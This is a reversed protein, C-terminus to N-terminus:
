YGRLRRAEEIKRELERKVDAPLGNLAESTAQDIASNVGPQTLAKMVAANTDQTVTSLSKNITSANSRNIESNSQDRRDNNVDENFTTWRKCTGWYTYTYIEGEEDTGYGTLQCPYTIEREGEYDRRISSDSDAASKSNNAAQDSMGRVRDSIIDNNLKARTDEEINNIDQALKFSENKGNDYFSDKEKDSIGEDTKVGDIADDINDVAKQMIDDIEHGSPGIMDQTGYSVNDMLSPTNDYSLGLDSVGAAPSIQAVSSGDPTNAVNNYIAFIAVLGAVLVSTSYLISRTFNSMKPNDGRYM